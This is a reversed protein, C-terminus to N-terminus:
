KGSRQAADDATVGQWQSHRPAYLGMLMPAFPYIIAVGIWAGLSSVAFDAVSSSRGIIGLQVIELIGSCLSLLVGILMLQSRRPYGASLLMAAGFYAALHELHKEGLIEPRAQGPLVSLVIIALVSLWGAMCIASRLM